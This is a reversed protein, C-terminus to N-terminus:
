ERKEFEEVLRKPILSEGSEDMKRSGMRLEVASRILGVESKDLGSALIAEDMLAEKVEILSSSISNSIIANVLGLITHRHRKEIGKVSLLLPAIAPALYASDVRAIDAAFDTLSALDQHNAQVGVHYLYSVDPMLLTELYRRRIFESADEDRSSPGYVEFPWAVNIPKHSLTSPCSLELGLVLPTVQTPRSPGAMPQAVVAMTTTLISKQEHGKKKSADFSEPTFCTACYRLKRFDEHDGDIGFTSCQTCGNM